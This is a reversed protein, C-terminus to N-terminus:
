DRKEHIIGGGIMLIIVVNGNYVLLQCFVVVVYLIMRMPTCCLGCGMNKDIDQVKLM